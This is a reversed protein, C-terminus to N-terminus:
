YPNDNAERLLAPQIPLPLLLLPLKFQLESDLNIAYLTSSYHINTDDRDAIPRDTRNVFPCALFHERAYGIIAPRFM